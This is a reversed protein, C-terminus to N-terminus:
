TSKRIESPAVGTKKKFIRSFYHISQFGLDYAIEKVTRDTSVLM